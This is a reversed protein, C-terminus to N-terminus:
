GTRTQSTRESCSSHKVYVLLRVGDAPDIYDLAQGRRMGLKEALRRSPQNGEAIRSYVIRIGLDTLSKQMVAAAAEQAYGKRWQDARIRWGIEVQGQITSSRETVKIIGCFGLFSRDRKREVVWFTFGNRALQKQFYDYEIRLQRATLIEGLWEMVQDTNCYRDYKGIDTKRWTRLRLRRTTLVTKTLM